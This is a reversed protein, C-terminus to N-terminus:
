ELQLREGADTSKGVYRYIKHPAEITILYVYPKSLDVGHPNTWRMADLQGSVEMRPRVGSNLRAAYHCPTTSSALVFPRAVFPTPKFSNNSKM